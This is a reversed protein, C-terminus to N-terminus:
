RAPRGAHGSASAEEGQYTGNAAFVVGSEDTHFDADLDIDLGADIYSLQGQTVTLQEVRVRSEKKEQDDQKLIWNKRGEADQELNLEAGELHVDPIVIRGALLPLVKVSAEIVDASLLYDERAWDANDFTVKEVRFRPHTWSWVAKLNGEIKLERGTADSVARTIPGRLANLGFTIFLALAVLLGLVLVATWKLATRM